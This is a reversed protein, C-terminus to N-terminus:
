EARLTLLPDIRAARRAPLYSAVLALAGIVAAAGAFTAPDRPEIQFLFRALLRTTILALGVGGAVGITAMTLAQGLVLRVVDLSRAGIAMRIGIERTRSAVAYGLVGLMGVGILLLASGAFGGLLVARFRPEAVSQSVLEGMTTVRGISLLPDIRHIRDRVAPALAEASASSRVVVTLGRLLFPVPAQNIPFYIAPSPDADLAMQKVDQVVGVVVRWPDDEARGFGVRLRKGVASQGPWVRRALQETVVVVLPAGDSDEATFDRGALMPISMTEFYGQSVASKVADFGPPHTAGEVSFDGALWAGGIPLWNVAAARTVRPVASLDNLVAGAFRRMSEFDPYRGEPLAVEAVLVDGSRFGPDVGTLRAFSITVLGAATLLVFALAVEGIVLARLGGTRRTQAISGDKLDLVADSRAARLAPWIGFLVGSMLSSLLSFALVRGDIRLDTVHPLAGPPILSAVVDLGIAAAITGVMGGILALMISDTLHQRILRGRGSGLAARIAVDRRRTSSRALLLNAVNACAILQLLAVAGFVVLLLPRIPAVLRDHIPVLQLPTWSANPPGLPSGVRARIADALTRMQM